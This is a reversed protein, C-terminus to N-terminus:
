ENKQQLMRSRSGQHSSLSTSEDHFRANIRQENGKRQKNGTRPQSKRGYMPKGAVTTARLIQGRSGDGQQSSLFATEAHFIPATTFAGRLCDKDKNHSV